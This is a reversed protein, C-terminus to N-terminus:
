LLRMKRLSDVTAFFLTETIDDILWQNPIKRSKPAYKKPRFYKFKKLRNQNVLNITVSMIGTNQFQQPHTATNQAQIKKEMERCWLCAADNCLNSTPNTKLHESMFDLLEKAQGITSYANGIKGTKLIAKQKMIPALEPLRKTCPVDNYIYLRVKGNDDLYKTGCPRQIQDFLGAIRQAEHRIAVLNNGIGVSLFKGNISSLRSYPAYMDSNHDHGKTLFEAQNGIAVISCVPHKSRVANTRKRMTEPILGTNCVSSNTFTNMMLTGNKGVVQLLADIVTEAGGKVFGINKLSSGVALHDGEAVGIKVTFKRIIETDTLDRIRKRIAGESLGIQKGIDSYSARGDNKLIKLIEKDKEDM